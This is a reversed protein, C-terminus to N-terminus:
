KNEVAFVDKVPITKDTEERKIQDDEKIFAKLVEVLGDKEEVPLKEEVIQTEQKIVSFSKSEEILETKEVM